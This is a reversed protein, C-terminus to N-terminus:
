AVEFSMFVLPIFLLEHGSTTLIVNGEHTCGHVSRPVEQM